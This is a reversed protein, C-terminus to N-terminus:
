IGAMGYLNYRGASFLLHGALDARDRRTLYHTAGYSERMRRLEAISLRPQHDDLEDTIGFGRRSFPVSGNLEELRRKWELIRRDHPPHRFGAMQQREAYTWFEPLYPTVFVSGALTNERIWAYVRRRSSSVSGGYRGREGEEFSKVLKIPVKALRSPAGRDLVLWGAVVLGLAWAVKGFASKPLGVAAWALVLVFLFFVPAGNAWQFPYVKLLANLDVAGALLGLSFFLILMLVFCAVIRSARERSWLFLLVVAIPFVLLVRTWRTASMFFAPDCCHPQAFTVYTKDMLAGEEASLGGVHFLGVSLVLPAILPATALLYVALQRYTFRGRNVLMSLFLALCGWGGIIIHFVTALGAALGARVVQGRIAFTLAFFILPYAFSKPQFGELFSGCAIISQQSLVFLAFGVVMSWAPIRLTRALLALSWALLVWTVLRGLVAIDFDSLFAWFPALLHDFLFTTPPLTSWSLDGSLFEPDFVRRSGLMYIAEHKRVYGRWQTAAAVLFLLVAAVSYSDYHLWRASRSPRDEGKPAAGRGM